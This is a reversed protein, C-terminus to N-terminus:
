LYLVYARTEAIHRADEIREDPASRWDQAKTPGTMPIHIAHLRLSPRDNFCLLIMYSLSIRQERIGPFAYRPYPPFSVCRM